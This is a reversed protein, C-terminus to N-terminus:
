RRLAQYSEEPLDLWISGRGTSLDHEVNEITESQPAYRRHLELIREPTTNYYHAKAPPNNPMGITTRADEELFHCTWGGCQMFNMLVRRAKPHTVRNRNNTCYDMSM